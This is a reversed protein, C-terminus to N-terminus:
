LWLTASDFNSGPETESWLEEKRIMASYTYPCAMGDKNLAVHTGPVRLYKCIGKRRM